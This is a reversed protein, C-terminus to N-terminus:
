CCPRACRQKDLWTAGHVNYEAVGALPTRTVAPHVYKHVPSPAADARAPPLPARVGGNWYAGRAAYARESAALAPVRVARNFHRPDALPLLFTPLRTRPVVDALLAWYAGVTRLHTHEPVGFKHRTDSYAGISEDWMCDNMFRRVANGLTRVLVRVVRNPGRVHVRPAHPPPGCHAHVYSSLRSMELLCDEIEPMDGHGLEMAMHVLYKASIIAQATADIWSMFSHDIFHHEGVAVRPQNDM